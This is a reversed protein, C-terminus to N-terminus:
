KRVRFKTGGRIGAADRDMYQHVRQESDEAERLTNFVPFGRGASRRDGEDPSVVEGDWYTPVVRYGGDSEDGVIAGMFSTISGDPNRRFSGDRYKQRSYDLARQEADSLTALGGQAFRMAGQPSMPRPAMPMASQMGYPAGLGSMAPMQPPQPMQGQQMSQQPQQAMLPQQQPIGPQQPATPPKVAFAGTPQGMQRVRLADMIDSRAREAIQNFFM